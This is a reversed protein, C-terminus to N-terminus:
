CNNFDVWFTTGDEHSSTVGFKFKHAVLIEKVISLGIGTGAVRRNGSKDIKYYRDWILPLDEQNIVDGKNNVKFIKNEMLEVEVRKTEVSHNIANDILNCLVQEIRGVDGDVYVDPCINYSLEYGQDNFIEYRKSLKEINSSLNFNQPYFEVKGAQLKSLDLMNSILDSLRDTEDIIIELQADRKEANNGTIDKITEAYGKILTLPTRLEHSVNSILDKRIGDVKSLENTMYNFDKQLVGVEDERTELIKVTYDGKAVQKVASSLNIIPRSVSEAVVFSIAVSMIFMLFLIILLLRKLIDSTAEVPALQSRILAYYENHNNEFKNVLVLSSPYNANNRIKGTYTNRGSKIVNDVIDGLAYGSMIDEMNFRIRGSYNGFYLFPHYLMEGDSNYIFVFLDKKRSIEIVKEYNESLDGTKLERVITSQVKKADLEKSFEYFNQLFVIGLLWMVFILCSMTGLLMLWTKIKLSKIM